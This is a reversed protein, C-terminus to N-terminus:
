ADNAFTETTLIINFMLLLIKDYILYMFEFIFNSDSKPMQSDRKVLAPVQIGIIITVTLYFQFLIDHLFQYTPFQSKESVHLICLLLFMLFSINPLIPSLRM